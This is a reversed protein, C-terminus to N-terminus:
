NDFQITVNRSGDANPMLSVNGNKGLYKGTTAIINSEALIGIPYFQSPITNMFTYQWSITGQNYIYYSSNIRVIYQNIDVQQIYDDAIKYGIQFGCNDYIPCRLFVHAIYTPSNPNVVTTQTTFEPDHINFSFSLTSM